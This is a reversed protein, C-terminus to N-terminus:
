TKEKEHAGRVCVVKAKLLYYAVPLVELFGDLIREM